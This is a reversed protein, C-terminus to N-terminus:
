TIAQLNNHKNDNTKGTHIQSRRDGTQQYLKSTVDTIQDQLSHIMDSDKQCHIDNQKQLTQVKEELSSLRFLLENYSIHSFKGNVIKTAYILISLCIIKNM